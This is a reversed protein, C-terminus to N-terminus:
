EEYETFKWNFNGEISLCNMYDQSMSLLYDVPLMAVNSLVKFTRGNDHLIMNMDDNYWLCLKGTIDGKFNLGLKFHELDGIIEAGKKKPVGAVTCTLKGNYVTAYKKAGWCRMSVTDEEDISGLEHPNGNIDYYTLELGCKRQYETIEKELKLIKKRSEEANLAFISDTDCYVFDDGVADIMRQLYIRGLAAIYVGASYNIFYGSSRQFKELFEAIDQPPKEEIGNDTMEYQLRLPNTMAMGYISNCGQKAIKYEEKSEVNKLETKRGYLDLVFRRVIDPLYGKNTFYGKLIIADDFDYQEKIIKWEIGLISIKIQESGSIYRGNDTMDLQFGKLVVMKSISIYPVTVHDKLKPNILVIDFMTCYGNREFLEIDEVYAGSDLPRWVGLPFEPYCVMQAPYSSCIDGHYVDHLIMGTYKRNCHTNGGRACRILMKLIDADMQQRKLMKFYEKQEQTKYKVNIGVQAKLSKRIFSTATPCNTWIPEGHGKLYNLISESLSLVDLASYLLTNDDLPTYPTRLITYDILEKDKKYIKGWDKTLTELSMNSMKYSDRFMLGDNTVITVPHKDDLAFCLEPKIKWIKKFFVYEFNLNHIFFILRRNIATKFYETIWNFIKEAHEYTRCMIVHGYINWQFLYPFAVPPADAGANYDLEGSRITTTEIDFSCPYNYYEVKNRGRGGRAVTTLDGAHDNSLQKILPKADDFEYIPIDINNYKVHIM